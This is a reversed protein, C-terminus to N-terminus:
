FPTEGDFQAYDERLPAEDPVNPGRVIPNGPMRDLENDVHVAEIPRDLYVLNSVVVETRYVPKNTAPDQYTRTQLRGRALVRRGKTLYKAAAEATGEWLVLNHWETRNVGGPGRETTALSVSAVARGTSTYRLEPAKGLNGILTVENM